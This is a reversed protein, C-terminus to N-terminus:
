SSTISLKVAGRKLYMVSHCPEGQTFITQGKRYNEIKRAVGATQLYKEVDFPPAERSQNKAM